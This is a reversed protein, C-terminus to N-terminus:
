RVGFGAVGVLISIAIFFMLATIVVSGFLHLFTGGVNQLADPLRGNGLPQILASSCYYIMAVALIKILPFVTILVVLGLGLVGVGSKLVQSCGAAMEVSDSVAGGVVPLFSNTFYKMTRLAMSDAVSAAFGRITILGIFVTMALGLLGLALNRLLNAIKNVQFGESLFQVMGFIGSFLILPFIVGKVLGAIIGVASVLLPHVITATTIGGGAVILSFIVPIIAYMFNTMEVVAERAVAFTVRFSNLVIGMVILFCISFAVQNVTDTEFAHQLNQLIALSIAILFLEALLRLNFVLERMFYKFVGRGISHIDWEPGTLGWSKVDLNPLYMMVDHDLRDIFRNLESLDLAETIQSPLGDAAWVASWPLALFIVSLLLIYPARKTM